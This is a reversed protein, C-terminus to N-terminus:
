CGLVGRIAGILISLINLSSGAVGLHGGLAAAIADLSAGAMILGVLTTAIGAIGVGASAVFLGSAAVLGIIILFQWWSPEACSSGVRGIIFHSIEPLPTFYIIEMSTRYILLVSCRLYEWKM